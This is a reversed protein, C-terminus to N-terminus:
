KSPILSDNDIQLEEITVGIGRMEVKVQIFKGDSGLQTSYYNITNENTITTLETWNDVNFYFADNVVAFPFAEGIAVTWTGSALTLSDIRAMHGSGVGGTIELEDEVAVDSMDATTTFTSTTVWKASWQTTSEFRVSSFPLGYRDKTKYKIIISDEPGLPKFKLTILNHNDTVNASNLRPTVFYGRNPLFASIPCFVARNTSLTQKSVLDATMCIRGVYSSDFLLSNLVAMASRNNPSYSWGYDNTKVCYFAPNTGAASFDIAIGALADAYTDAVKFVRASVKIIFYCRGGTKLEPIATTAEHFIPMGTIVGTLYSDAGTTVTNVNADVTVATFPMSVTNSYSPSYKHYFAGNSDDYCWIGAPFDPLVKLGSTYLGSDLNVLILDGDTALGRNSVRSYDNLADCWELNNKYVPLTALTDFGGGNFRVLEGLSNIGVITSKFTKISALEFTGVPYAYDHTAKIADIIFLKAEGGSKSRTAIYLNNGVSAMSSVQYETPLVLVTANVAWSTNIFKVCNNNGVALGAGYLTLCTPVSTSFVGGSVSVDTWDTGVRYSVNSGDTAMQCGNFYICDEEVGPTPTDTWGYNAADYLQDFGAVGNYIDDSNLFITSDGAYICDVVDFDADKDESYQAFTAEALKIYGQEDLSINRSKYITGTLDSKNDQLHKKTEQNPIIFM